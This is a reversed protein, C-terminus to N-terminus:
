THSIPMIGVPVAGQSPQGQPACCLSDLLRHWPTEHDARRFGEQKLAEMQLYTHIDGWSSIFPETESTRRQCLKNCRGTDCGSIVEVDKLVDSM